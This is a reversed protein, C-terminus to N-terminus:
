MGLRLQSWIAPDEGGLRWLVVGGVRYQRALDLKAQLSRADEYWVTHPRGQADTYAFWPSASTLDWRVRAAHTKALAQADTWQLDQGSQGSTWDYGYTAVGLLIKARPVESVALRLVGNVWAPPAIPGPASDETSYDYAMVRVEDAVQGLSRWDQAQAGSWDGPEATKAHVTLTLRRHARHLATALSRVFASYAARDAARLSEYDLDIGAWRHSRALEVIATVHAARTQPDSLIGHILPEDWQGDRENAITPAIAVHHSSAQAEVVSAQQEAEPSAFVLQGSGTPRYWVPSIETLVGNDMAALGRPDEPVLYGAVTRLTSPGQGSQASQGCAALQGLGLAVLLTFFSAQRIM